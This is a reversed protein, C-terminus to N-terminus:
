PEFIMKADDRYIVEDYDNFTFSIGDALRTGYSENNNFEPMTKMYVVGRDKVQEFVDGADLESFRVIIEKKTM